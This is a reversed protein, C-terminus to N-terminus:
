PSEIVSPSVNLDVAVRRSTWGEPILNVARAVQVENLHRMPDVPKRVVHEFSRLLRHVECRSVYAGINM